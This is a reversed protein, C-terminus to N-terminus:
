FHKTGLPIGLFYYRKKHTFVDTRAFTVNFIKFREVRCPQQPMCLLERCGHSDLFQEYRQMAAANAGSDNFRRIHHHQKGLSTTMEVNHYVAGPVTAVTSALVIAPKTFIYDQCNIVSEEFRLGKQLLFERRYIYRWAPNFANAQTVLVKERLETLVRVTDFVPFSYGPEDVETCLIDARCLEAVAAIKEYFDISVYDDHDHWHVYDGTAADLGSNQAASPGGNPRDVVKVRADTRAYEQLVALTSDTSGDNVLIIELDSYTQHLLQGLARSIFGAANYVPVIVSIKM